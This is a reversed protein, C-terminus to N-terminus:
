ARLPLEPTELRPTNGFYRSFSPSSVRSTHCSVRDERKGDSVLGVM